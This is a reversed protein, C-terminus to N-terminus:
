LTLVRQYDALKRRREEPSIYTGMLRDIEDDSEAQRVIDERYKRSCIDFGVQPLREVLKYELPLLRKEAM